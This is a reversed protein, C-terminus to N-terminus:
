IFLSLCNMKLKTTVIPSITVVNVQTLAAEYLPECLAVTDVETPDAFAVHAAVYEVVAFVLHVVLQDDLEHDFLTIDTIILWEFVTLPVLNVVVPLMEM